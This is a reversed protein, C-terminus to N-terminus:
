EKSQYARSYKIQPVHYMDANKIYRNRRIDGPDQPRQEITVTCETFVIIGKTRNHQFDHPITLYISFELTDFRQM